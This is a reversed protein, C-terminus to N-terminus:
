RRRSLPPCNMAEAVVAAAEDQVFELLYAQALEIYAERAKTARCHLSARTDSVDNRLANEASKWEVYKNLIDQAEDINM